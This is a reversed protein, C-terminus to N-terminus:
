HITKQIITAGIGLPGEAVIVGAQPAAKSAQLYEMLRSQLEPINGRVAALQAMKIYLPVEQQIKPVYPKIPPEVHHLLMRRAANRDVVEELALTLKIIDHKTLQKSPTPEVPKPPHYTELDPFLADLSFETEDRM